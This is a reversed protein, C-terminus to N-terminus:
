VSLFNLIKYEDTNSRFLGNKKCLQKRLHPSRTLPIFVPPCIFMCCHWGSFLFGINHILQMREFNTHQIGLDRYKTNLWFTLLNDNIESGIHFYTRQIPITNIRSARYLFLLDTESLVSLTVIHLSLWFIRLWLGSSFM